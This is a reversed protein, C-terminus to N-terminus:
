AFIDATTQGTLPDPGFKNPGRIGKLTSIALISLSFMWGIIPILSVVALGLYWRGSLNRDHFRRIQLAIIPLATALSFLGIPIVIIAYFTDTKDGGTIIGALGGFIIAFACLVLWYFLQFWWYESRPARGSFTAYKDKLVTRIADVFGM